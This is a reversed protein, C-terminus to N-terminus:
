VTKRLPAFELFLKLLLNVWILLLDAGFLKLDKELMPDPRFM